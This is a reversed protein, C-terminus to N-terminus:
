LKIHVAKVHLPCQFILAGRNHAIKVNITMQCGLLTRYFYLQPPQVKHRCIATYFMVLTVMVPNINLYMLRAVFCVLFYLLLHFFVLQALEALRQMQLPSGNCTKVFLQVLSTLDNLPQSVKCSKYVAHSYLVKNRDSVRFEHAVEILKQLYFFEVQYINRVYM